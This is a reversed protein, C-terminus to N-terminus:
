KRQDSSSLKSHANPNALRKPITQTSKSVWSRIMLADPCMYLRMTLLLRDQPLAPPMLNKIAANSSRM